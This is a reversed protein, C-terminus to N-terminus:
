IRDNEQEANGGWVGATTERNGTLCLSAKICYLTCAKPFAGLQVVARPCSESTFQEVLEGEGESDDPLVTLMEKANYGLPVEERELQWSFSWFRGPVTHGQARECM